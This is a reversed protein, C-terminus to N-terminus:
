HNDRPLDRAVKHYATALELCGGDGLQGVHTRYIEEWPTQSALEPATWSSRREVWEDEPV